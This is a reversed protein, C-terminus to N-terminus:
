AHASSLIWKRELRELHEFNGKEIPLHDIREEGVQQGGGGNVVSREMVKGYHACSKAMKEFRREGERESM